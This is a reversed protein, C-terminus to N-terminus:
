TQTHTNSFSLFNLKDTHIEAWATHTFGRCKPVQMRALRDTETCTYTCIHTHMNSVATHNIGEQEPTATQPGRHTM